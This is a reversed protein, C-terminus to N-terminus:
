RRMLRLITQGSLVQHGSSRIVQKGDEYNATHKPLQKVFKRVARAYELTRDELDYTKTM